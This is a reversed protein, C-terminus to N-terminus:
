PHGGRKRAGHGQEDKKKEGKLMGVDVHVGQKELNRVYKEPNKKFKEPCGNCCFYIKSGDPLDMVAERDIEKGSVPCRTQYTYSALLKAQYKEPDAEFKAKCKACCFYVKEGKSETFVSTDVPDGSLPCTVQVHEMKALAERQASIQKKYKAPNEKVKDICMPCCFYVPGDDLMTSVAFNVPNGMVPCVPM